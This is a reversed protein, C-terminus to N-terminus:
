TIEYGKRSESGARFDHIAMGIRPFLRGADADAPLHVTFKAGHRQASEVEIRGGHDRIIEQSISLGLGAGGGAPKTTFFPDFVRDRFEPEIGRGDDEVEVRVGVDEVRTRVTVTGGESCAEFGNILLNLVVQNIMAARCRVRPLPALDTIIRLHRRYAQSLSVSVTSEIGANIDAETAEGGDSRAFGRLETVIQHIRGSGNRTSAFLKRINSVVFEIEHHERFDRIQGLLDAREEGSPREAQEYLAILQCLQDVDRAAVAVNNSVFSLPNNIEHVVGAV